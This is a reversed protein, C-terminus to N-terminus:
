KTKQEEWVGFLSVRIMLPETLRLEVGSYHGETADAPDHGVRFLVAFTYDHPIKVCTEGYRFMQEQERVARVLTEVRSEAHGLIDRKGVLDETDHAQVEAALKAVEARSMAVAEAPTGFKYVGSRREPDWTMASLPCISMSMQTFDFSLASSALLADIESRAGTVFDLKIGFVFWAGMRPARGSEKVNTYPFSVSKKFGQGMNGMTTAFLRNTGCTRMDTGKEFYYSSWVAPMSGQDVLEWDQAMPGAGLAVQEKLTQNSAELQQAYDKAIRTAALAAQLRQEAEERERAEAARQAELARQMTAEREAPLGLAELVKDIPGRVEFSKDIFADGAPIRVAIWFTEAPSQTVSVIHAAAPILVAGHLGDLQIFTM